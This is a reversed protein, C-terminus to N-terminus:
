KLKLMPRAEADSFLGSNHRQGVQLEEGQERGIQDAAKAAEHGQRSGTCTVGCVSRLQISTSLTMMM